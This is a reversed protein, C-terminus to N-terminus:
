HQSYYSPTNSVADNEPMKVFWKEARRRLSTLPAWFTRQLRWLLRLRELPLVPQQAWRM